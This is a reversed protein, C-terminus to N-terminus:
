SGEELNMRLQTLDLLIKRIKNSNKSIELAIDSKSEGCSLITLIVFDQQVDAMKELLPVAVSNRKEKALFNGLFVAVLYRQQLSLEDFKHPKNILETITPVETKLFSHYRLGTEEGLLGAATQLSFSTDITPLLNAIATWSRPAPFNTLTEIEHAIKIFDEPFHSLYALTRKDWYRFHRDMWATWGELTPPQVKCAIFRNILPAPLLNAISSHEPANGASIIMTELTFKTFGCRREQVIRFTASLVDPRQINTLEDIFLIGSAKSLVSAWSLPIYSTRGNIMKPIGTLDAPELHTPNLDVLVFYNDPRQLIQEALPEDYDVFTKGLERALEQSAERVATTKGIGPLGILLLSPRGAKYLEKIYTKLEEIRLATEVTFM